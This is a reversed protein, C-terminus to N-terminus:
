FLDKVVTYFQKLVDRRSVVGVLRAGDFVPLTHVNKYKMLAIIRELTTNRHIRVVETSMAFRVTSNATPMVNAEVMDWSKIMDMVMFLDSSTIVGVVRGKRGVVPLGTVRAETMLKAIDALLADERATMIQKSMVDKAKIAKLKRMLMSFGTQGAKKM